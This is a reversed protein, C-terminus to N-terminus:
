STLISWCWPSSSTLRRFSGRWVYIFIIIVGVGSLRLITVGAGSIYLFICYYSGRWIYSTRVHNRDIRYRISSFIWKLVFTVSCVIQMQESESHSIPNRM